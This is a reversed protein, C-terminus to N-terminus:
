QVLWLPPRRTRGGQSQGNNGRPGYCPGTIIEGQPPVSGPLVGLLAGAAERATGPREEEDSGEPRMRRKGPSNTTTMLIPATEGSGGGAGPALPGPPRPAALAAAVMRSEAPTAASEQRLLERQIEVDYGVEEPAFAAGGFGPDGGGEQLYRGPALLSGQIARLATHIANLQAKSARAELEQSRRMSALEQELAGLRSAVSSSHDQGGIEAAAPTVLGEKGRSFGWGVDHFERKPGAPGGDRHGAREGGAEALVVAEEKKESEVVSGSGKAACSGSGGGSTTQRVKGEIMLGSTMRPGWELAHPTGSSGLGGADAGGAGVGGHKKQADLVQRVASKFRRRAVIQRAAQDIWEKVGPHEELVEKLSSLTLTLTAVYTLALATDVDDEAGCILDEGWFSGKSLLKGEKAILGRQVVWLQGLSQIQERHNFMTPEMKGAVDALFRQDTGQFYWVNSLYGGTTALAYEDQLAPSMRTVLDKYSLLRTIYQSERFYGRLSRRIADPVRQDKLMYNLADMTNHFENGWPDMNSVVGCFQGILYAYLIGGLLMGLICILYEEFRVPCIDGYGISTITMVSWHLSAAYIRSPRCPDDPSTKGDAGYLATVWSVSGPDGFDRLPRGGLGPDEEDDGPARSCNLDVLALGVFGWLCALWHCLTLLLIILKVMTLQSFPIALDREYRKWMRSARLMKFLRLVKLPRLLRLIKMDSLDNPGAIVTVIDFPLISVFDLLFWGRLYSAAIQRRTKVLIKTGDPLTKEVKRLFCMVLDKLFVLDILRNVLFLFGLETELFAVEFPTVLATFCLSITVLLDFHTIYKSDPDLTFHTPRLARRILKGQQGLSLESWERVPAGLRKADEKCLRSFNLDRPEWQPQCLRGFLSPM